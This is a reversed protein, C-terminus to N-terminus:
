SVCPVQKPFRLAIIRLSRLRGAGPLIQQLALSEAVENDSEYACTLSLEELNSVDTDSFFTYAMRPVFNLWLKRIRHMNRNISAALAYEDPDGDLGLTYSYGIDLPPDSARDLLLLLLPIYGSKYKFFEDTSKCLFPNKLAVERWHRCVSSAAVRNKMPGLIEFIRNYLEIPLSLAPRTANELSALDAM